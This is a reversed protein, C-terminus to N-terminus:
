KRTFFPVQHPISPQASLSLIAHGVAHQSLMGGQSLYPVDADQRGCFTPIRCISEHADVMKKAKGSGSFGVCGRRLSSGLSGRGQQPCRPCPCQGLYPSQRQGPPRMRESKEGVDWPSPVHRRRQNALYFQRPISARREHNRYLANSTQSSRLLNAACRRVAAIHLPNESWM